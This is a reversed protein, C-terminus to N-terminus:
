RLKGVSKNGVKFIYNNSSPTKGAREAVGLLTSAFFIKGSPTVLVYQNKHKQELPKVYKEYAKNADHITPSQPNM